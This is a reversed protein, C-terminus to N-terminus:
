FDREEPHGEVEIDPFDPIVGAFQTIFNDTDDSVHIKGQYEGITKQKVTFKQQQKQLYKIFDFVQNQLDPTLIEVDHILQETNM